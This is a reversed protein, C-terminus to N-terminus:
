LLPSYALLSDAHVILDPDTRDTQNVFHAALDTDNGDFFRAVECLIPAKVQDFDSGFGSRGDHLQHIVPLELVLSLASSTVGLFFLVVNRYFLDLKSRSDFIMVVVELSTM